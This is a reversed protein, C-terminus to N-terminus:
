RYGDVDREGHRRAWERTGSFYETDIEELDQRPRVVMGIEVLSGGASGAVSCIEHRFRGADCPMGDAYATCTIYIQAPHM